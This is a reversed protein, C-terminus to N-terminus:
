HGFTISDIGVYLPGPADPAEIRVSQFLGPAWASEPVDLAFGQWWAGGEVDVDGVASGNVSVRVRSDETTM